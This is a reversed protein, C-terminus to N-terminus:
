NYEKDSNFSKRFKLKVATVEKADLGFKEILHMGNFKKILNQKYEIDQLLKDFQHEFEEKKQFYQLTYEFLNEVPPADVIEEEKFQSKLYEIYFHTIKSRKGTELSFM